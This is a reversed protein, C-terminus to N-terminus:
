VKEVSIIAKVFDKHDDKVMDEIENRMTKYDMNTEKRLLIFTVRGKDQLNRNKQLKTKM